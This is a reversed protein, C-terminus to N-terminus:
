VLQSFGTNLPLLCVRLITHRVLSLRRHHKSAIPASQMMNVNWNADTTRPIVGLTASPPSEINRTFSRM